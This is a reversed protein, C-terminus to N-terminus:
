IVSSGLDPALREAHGTAGMESYLRHAGRLERTRAPENGGLRALEAREEHIQPLFARAGFEEIREVARALAAEIPGASALGVAM